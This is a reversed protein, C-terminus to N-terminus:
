RDEKPECLWCVEQEEEEDEACIQYVDDSDAVEVFESSIQGLGVATLLDEFTVAYTKGDNLDDLVVVEGANLLFWPAHRTETRDM